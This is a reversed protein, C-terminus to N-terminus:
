AQGVKYNIRANGVFSFPENSIKSFLNQNTQGVKPRYITVTSNVTGQAMKFPLWAKAKLYPASPHFRGM